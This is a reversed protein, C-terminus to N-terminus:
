SVHHCYGSLGCRDTGHSQDTNGPPQYERTQSEPQLTPPPLYTLLRPSLTTIHNTRVQRKTPRALELSPPQLTPNGGGRVCGGPCKGLWSPGCWPEHNISCLFPIPTRLFVCTWTDNEHFVGPHASPPGPLGTGLSLFSRGRGKTLPFETM